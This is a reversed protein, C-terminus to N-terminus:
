KKGLHGFYGNFLKLLDLSMMVLRKESAEMGLKRLKTTLSLFTDKARNLKKFKNNKHIEVIAKSINKPIEMVMKRVKLFEEEGIESRNNVTWDLVLKSYLLSHRYLNMDRPNGIEEM